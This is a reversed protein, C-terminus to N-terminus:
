RASRAIGRPRVPNSNMERMRQVYIGYSRQAEQEVQEPTARGAELDRMMQALYRDYEPDQSQKQLQVLRERVRDLEM